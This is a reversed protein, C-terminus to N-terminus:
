LAARTTQPGGVSTETALFSLELANDQVAEKVLRMDIGEDTLLRRLEALAGDIRRYLRSQDLDHARAISAVTRKKAFRQRILWQHESDLKSLADRFAQRVRSRALKRRNERLRQQVGGTEALAGLADVSRYQRKPRCPLKVALEVLEDESVDPYPGRLQEIAEPLTLRQWNLARELDIAVPGLRKATASPRWKGSIHIRYDRALNAVVTHLFTSYSSEGRFKKLVARNGELLRVYAWGQFDEGEDRSFFVRSTRAVISTILDINEHFPDVGSEPALGPM